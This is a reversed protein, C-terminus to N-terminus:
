EDACAQEKAILERVFELTQDALGIEEETMLRVSNMQLLSDPANMGLMTDAEQSLAYKKILSFYLSLDKQHAELALPNPM